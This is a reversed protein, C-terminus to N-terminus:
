ASKNGTRWKFEPHTGAIWDPAFRIVEAFEQKLVDLQGCLQFYFPPKFRFRPFIRVKNEKGVHENFDVISDDCRTPSAFRDRHFEFLFKVIQTKRLLILCRCVHQCKLLIKTMQSFRPKVWGTLQVIGGRFQDTINKARTCVIQPGSCSFTLPKLPFIEHGKKLLTPAKFHGGRARLYWHNWTWVLAWQAPATM